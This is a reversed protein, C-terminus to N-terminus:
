LAGGLDVEVVVVVVRLLKQANEAGLWAGLWGAAHLNLLDRKLRHAVVAHAHGDGLARVRVTGTM